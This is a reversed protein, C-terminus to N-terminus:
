PHMGTFYMYDDIPTAIDIVWAYVAGQDFVEILIESQAPLTYICAYCIVSAVLCDNEANLQDILYFLNEEHGLSDFSDPLPSLDDLIDNIEERIYSSDEFIIAECFGSLNDRQCSSLLLISIFALVLKYITKM